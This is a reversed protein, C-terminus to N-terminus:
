NGGPARPAGLRLWRVFSGGFSLDRNATRPV